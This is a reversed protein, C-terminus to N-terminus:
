RHLRGTKGGGAAAAAALPLIGLSNQDHPTSTEHEVIKATPPTQLQPLLLPFTFGNTQAKM